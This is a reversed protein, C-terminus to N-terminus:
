KLKNILPLKGNIASNLILSTDRRNLIDHNGSYNSYFIFNQNDLRIKYKDANSLYPKYHLERDGKSLRNVYHIANPINKHKKMFALLSLRDNYNKLIEKIDSSEFITERIKKFTFTKHVYIRANNVIALSDRNLTAFQLSMYGGASSGFYIVNSSEILWLRQIKILIESIDLTYHRDRTGVGFGVKLENNHLTPDDVYICCTTYDDVWSSRQFYPPEKLSREVAGNTFVILKKNDERLFLRFYFDVEEKIVKITAQRNKILFEISLDEYRIQPIVENM